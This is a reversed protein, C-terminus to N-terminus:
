EWEVRIKIQCNSDFNEVKYGLDELTNIVYKCFIEGESKNFHEFYRQFYIEYYGEKASKEITEKLSNLIKEKEMTQLILNSSDTLKKIEKASKINLEM